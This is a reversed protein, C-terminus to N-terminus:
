IIKLEDVNTNAMAKYASITYKSKLYFDSYKRRKSIAYNIKLKNKM